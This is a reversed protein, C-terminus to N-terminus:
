VSVGVGAFSGALSFGGWILGQHLLNPPCYLDGAIKIYGAWFMWSGAWTFALPFALMIGLCTFKSLELSDPPDLKIATMINFLVVLIFIAFFIVYVMAGAYMLSAGAPLDQIVKPVNHIGDSGAPLLYHHKSAFHVTKAMYGMAACQLFFECIMNSMFSDWYGPCSAIISLFM